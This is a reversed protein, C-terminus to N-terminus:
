VDHRFSIRSDRETDFIIDGAGDGRLPPAASSLRHDLGLAVMDGGLHKLKTIFHAGLIEPHERGLGLQPHADAGEVREECAAVGCRREILRSADWRKLEPELLGSILTLADADGLEIKGERMFLFM